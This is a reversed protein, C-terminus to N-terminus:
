SIPDEVLVMQLDGSGTLSGEKYRDQRTRLENKNGTHQEKERGKEKKM